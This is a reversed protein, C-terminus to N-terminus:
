KRSVMLAKRAQNLAEREHKNWLLKNDRILDLYKVEKKWDIDEGIRIIKLSLKGKRTIVRNFYKEKILLYQITEVM